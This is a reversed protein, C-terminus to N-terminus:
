LCAQDLKQKKDIAPIMLRAVFMYFVHISSMFSNGFDGAIDVIVIVLIDGQIRNRSGKVDTRVIKGTSKLLHCSICKNFIQIPHAYFFGLLKESIRIQTNCVNGFCDAEFATSM